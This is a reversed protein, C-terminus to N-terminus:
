ARAMPAHGVQLMEHLMQPEHQFLVGLVGDGTDVNHSTLDGCYDISAANQYLVHGNFDILTLISPVHSLVAYDRLLRPM